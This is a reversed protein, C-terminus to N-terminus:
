WGVQCRDCRQGTVGAKCLCRGSQPDCTETGCPSCDCGASPPQQSLQGLDFGLRGSRVAKGARDPGPRKSGM